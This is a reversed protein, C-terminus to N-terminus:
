NNIERVAENIIRYVDSETISYKEKLEDVIVTMQKEKNEIVYNLIFSRRKNLEEKKM